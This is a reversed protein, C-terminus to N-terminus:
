KGEIYLYFEISHDPPHTVERANEIKEVRFFGWTKGDLMHILPAFVLLHIYGIEIASGTSAKYRAMADQASKLIRSIFGAQLNLPKLIEALWTNIVGEDETGIPLKLEDLIQWGSESSKNSASMNFPKM